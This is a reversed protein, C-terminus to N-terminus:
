RPHMTEWLRAPTLPFQIKDPDACTGTMADRVAGLLAAPIGICGAEGVGKAGLLNAATASPLSELVVSPIDSARPLAYDMLSGTLLQGSDDYVIREMMAQGFGQALGGLLQGTVLAPSLLQGADDIWVLQEVKSAGTEPCVCVQVMVCGSGWAELPATYRTTVEIAETPLSGQARGARRNAEQWLQLVELCAQLVASGGIATSRSALAGIGAPCSDSDGQLVSVQEEDLTLATAAIRAFSVEHGQGQTASGSAVIVKGDPELRVRASEWGQGCPELYLAIGIGVLEGKIRREQQHARAEQYGFRQACRSLLAPFDGSDLTEGTLTQYPMASAPILHRLRFELPDEGLHKAAKDMLSEMLLAAEPRGAGRYINVATRHTGYAQAQLDISDIRYPGPLIRMANRMPVVASFAQWAGLPFQGRAELHLANNNAGLHLTAQLQGGRGHMSALFDESRPSAWHLQCRELNRTKGLHRAALALALEEPSISAKAGFAGGVDPTILHVQELALGLSTALDARARAPAQTGLFAQLRDEAASWIMLACRPEMPFAYVREQQISVSVSKEYILSTSHGFAIESIPSEAHELQGGSDNVELEVLSAAARALASSTAIVLACAQGCFTVEDQALVSARLLASDENVTALRNIEPMQLNAAYQGLDAASLVAIVGPAARAASLDLGTIQGQAYSSRVFVAHWSSGALNHVYRATGTVFRYHRSNQECANVM